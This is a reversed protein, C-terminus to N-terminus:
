KIQVGLSVSNKRLSREVGEFLDVEFPKGINNGALDELSTDVVIRYTGPTWPKEPVFSWQREEEALSTQGRVHRSDSDTVQIMRLALAHDLPAPFRILLPRLSNASPRNIKWTAIELPERLPPGVKFTKAY